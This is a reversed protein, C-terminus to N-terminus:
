KPRRTPAPKDGQSSRRNGVWTEITEFRHGRECQRLRTTKKRTALVKTPAGCATHPCLM